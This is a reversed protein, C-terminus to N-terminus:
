AFCRRLLAGAALIAAFGLWFGPKGLEALRRGRTTPDNPDTM